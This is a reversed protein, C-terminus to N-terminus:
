LKPKQLKCYEDRNIELWNFSGWNSDPENESEVCLGVPVGQTGDSHICIWYKMKFNTSM